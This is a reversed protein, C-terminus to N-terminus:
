AEEEAQAEEGVDEAKDGEDDDAQVVELYQEVKM